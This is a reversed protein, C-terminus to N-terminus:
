TKAAAHTHILNLQLQHASQPPKRRHHPRRRMRQRIFTRPPRPAQQLVQLPRRRRLTPGTTEM